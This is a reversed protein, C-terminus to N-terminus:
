RASRAVRIRVRLKGKVEIASLLDVNFGKASLSKTYAETSDVDKVKLELELADDKKRISEILFLNHSNEDWANSIGVLMHMLSISENSVTRLKGQLQLVPDVVVKEDPFNRLYKQLLEQELVSAQQSYSYGVGFWYLSQAFCICAFLVTAKKALAISLARQPKAAKPRAFNFNAAGVSWQMIRASFAKEDHHAIECGEKAYSITELSASGDGYLEIKSIEAHAFFSELAIEAHERPCALSTLDGRLLVRETSSVVALSNSEKPLVLSDVLVRAPEIGNARVEKLCDEYLTQALLVVTVPQGPVLESWNCWYKQFNETLDKEVLNPLAKQFKVEDSIPFEVCLQVVWEGPLVVIELQEDPLVEQEYFGEGFTWEGAICFGWSVDRLSHTRLWDPRFYHVRIASM